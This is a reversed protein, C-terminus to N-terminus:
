QFIPQSQYWEGVPISLREAAVSYYIVSTLSTVDVDEGGFGSRIKLTSLVTLVIRTHKGGHEVCATM